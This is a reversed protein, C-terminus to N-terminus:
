FKYSIQLIVCSVKLNQGGLVAAAIVAGYCIGFQLPGIVYKGWGPGALANTM